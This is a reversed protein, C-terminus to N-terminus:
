FTVPRRLQEEDVSRAQRLENNRDFRQKLTKNLLEEGRENLKKTAESVKASLQQKKEESIYLKTM